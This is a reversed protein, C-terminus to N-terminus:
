KQQKNKIKNNKISLQKNHSKYIKKKNFIKKSIIM